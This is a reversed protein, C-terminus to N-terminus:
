EIATACAPATTRGMVDYLAPDIAFGPRHTIAKRPAQRSAGPM